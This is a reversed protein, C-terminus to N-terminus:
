KWHGWMFLKWHGSLSKNYTYQSCEAEHEQSLSLSSCSWLFLLDIIFAKLLSLQKFNVVLYLVCSIKYILVKLHDVRIFCDNNFVDFSKCPCFRKQDAFHNNRWEIWEIYAKCFTFMTIYGISCTKCTQRKPCPFIVKNPFYTLVRNKSNYKLQQVNKRKLSDM